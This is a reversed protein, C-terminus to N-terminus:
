TSDLREPVSLSITKSQLKLM